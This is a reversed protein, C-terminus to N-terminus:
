ITTVTSSTITTQKLERIYLLLIARIYLWYLASAVRSYINSYYNLLPFEKEAIDHMKIRLVKNDSDNGNGWCFSFLCNVRFAYPIFFPEIITLNETLVCLNWMKKGMVFVISSNIDIVCENRCIHNNDSTKIIMSWILKRYINLSPWIQADLIYDYVCM